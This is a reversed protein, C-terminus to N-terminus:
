ELWELNLCSPIVVVSQPSGLNNFWLLSEQGCKGRNVKGKSTFVLSINRQTARTERQSSHTVFERELPLLTQIEQRWKRFWLTYMKFALTYQAFPDFCQDFVPQGQKSDTATISCCSCLCCPLFPNIQKIDRYWLWDCHSTLAPASLLLFSCPSQNIPKSEMSRWDAKRYLGPSSSLPLAVWFPNSKGVNIM